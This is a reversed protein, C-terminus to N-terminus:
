KDQKLFSFGLKVKNARKEESWCLFLFSQMSSNLLAFQNLEPGILAFEVALDFIM